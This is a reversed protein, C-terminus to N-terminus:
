KPLIEFVECVGQLRHAAVLRLDDGHCRHLLRGGRVLLVRAEEINLLHQLISRRTARCTSSAPGALVQRISLTLPHTPSRSSVVVVVALRNKGHRRRSTSCTVIRQKNDRAQTKRLRLEVVDNM